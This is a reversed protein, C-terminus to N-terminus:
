QLLLLFKATPMRELASQNESLEKQLIEIREVVPKADAGQKNLQYNTLEGVEMLKKAFKEASKSPMLYNVQRYRRSAGYVDQNNGDHMGVRAPAGAAVALSEAKAATGELDNVELAIQYNEAAQSCGFDRGWFAEPNSEDVAARLVRNAWATPVVALVLSLFVMMNGGSM